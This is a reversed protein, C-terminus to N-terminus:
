VTHTLMVCVAITIIFLIDYQRYRIYQKRRVERLEMSIAYANDAHMACEKKDNEAELEKEDLQTFLDSVTDDMEKFTKKFDKIDKTHSVTSDIYYVHLLKFAEVYQALSIIKVSSANDCKDFSQIFIDKDFDRLEEAYASFRDITAARKKKANALTQLQMGLKILEAETACKAEYEAQRASTKICGTVVPLSSVTDVGVNGTSGVQLVTPLTM